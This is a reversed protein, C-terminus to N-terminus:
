LNYKCCFRDILTVDKRDRDRGRVKKLIRTSELSAVKLDKYYFYNAPNFIVEQIDLGIEKWVKNHSDLPWIGRDFDKGLTHIFDLDINVDRIGYLALVASSEICFCDKNVRKNKLWNRYQNFLKNFKGSTKHTSFNMFHVSNDNLFLRALDMTQSHNDDIHLCSSDSHLLERIKYKCAIARSVDKLRCVIVRILADEKSINPFYREMHMKITGAKEPISALLFRAGNENLVVDKYHIITGYENIKKQIFDKHKYWDTWIISIFTDKKLRCYEFAMADLDEQSMGVSRLRESTLRTKPRSVSKFLNKKHSISLALLDYWDAVNSLNKGTSYQGDVLDAMSIFDQSNQKDREYLKNRAECYRENLRLAWDIGAGLRMQKACIYPAMSGFSSFDLNKLDALCLSSAFLFVVFFYRKQIFFKM